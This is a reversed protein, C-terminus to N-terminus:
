LCEKNLKIHTCHATCLIVCSEGRLYFVRVYIIAGMRRVAVNYIIDRRIHSHSRSKTFTDNVKMM